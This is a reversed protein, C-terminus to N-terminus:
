TLCFCTPPHVVWFHFKFTCNRRSLFRPRYNSPRWVFV